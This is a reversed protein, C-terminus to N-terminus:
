INWGDEDKFIIEFNEIFQLPITMNIGGALVKLSMGTINIVRKDVFGDEEDFYIRTGHNILLCFPKFGEHLLVTRWKIYYIEEEEMAFNKNFFEKIIEEQKMYYRRVM